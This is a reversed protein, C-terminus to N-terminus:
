ATFRTVNKGTRYCGTTHTNNTETQIKLFGQIQPHRTNSKKLFQEEPKRALQEESTKV